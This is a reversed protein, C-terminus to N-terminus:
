KETFPHTFQLKVAHLAQRPFLSKGGYLTDGALPHGIHSIFPIQHTRGTDLSCQIISLNQKSDTKLLHYHTIANQGTPSVRRRTPHHRDRGIPKHITGKKKSSEM